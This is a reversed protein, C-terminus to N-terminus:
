AIFARVVDFVRDRQNGDFVTAAPNSGRITLDRVIDLDGTLGANDGSGALSLTYTGAPLDILDHGTGPPCADVANRLNAAQIAERVSCDGDHNLEDATTTVTLTASAAVPLVFRTPALCGFCLTVLFLCLIRRSPHIRSRM